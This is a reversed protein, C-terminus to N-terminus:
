KYAYKSNNYINFNFMNLISWIYFESYNPIHSKPVFGLVRGNQIAAAVNYLKGNNQLPLGVFVIADMNSTSEAIEILANKASRLLPEQLFLDGCTYGTLCLEPFAIVKVDESNAKKICSIIQEKNFECDAVKIDPTVTAVKLFGDRM